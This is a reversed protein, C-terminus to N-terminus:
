INTKRHLVLRIDLRWGLGECIRAATLVSVNNGRLIRALTEPSCGSRAAAQKVSMTHIAERVASRLQRMTEDTAPGDVRARTEAMM